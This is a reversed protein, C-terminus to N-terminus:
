HGRAWQWLTISVLGSGCALEWQASEFGVLDLWPVSRLWVVTATLDKTRMNKLMGKTQSVPLAYKSMFQMDPVLCDIAQPPSPTSQTEDLCIRNPM